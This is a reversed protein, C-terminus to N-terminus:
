RKAGTSRSAKIHAKVLANENKRLVHKWAKEWEKMAVQESDVDMDDVGNPSLRPPEGKGPTSLSQLGGISCDRQRAKSVM